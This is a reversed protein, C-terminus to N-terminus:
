LVVVTITWGQGSIYKSFYYTENGKVKVFINLDRFTAKLFQLTLKISCYVKYTLTDYKLSILRDQSLLITSHHFKNELYYSSVAASWGVM